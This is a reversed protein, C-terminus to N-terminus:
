PYKVLASLLLRPFPPSFFAHPAPNMYGHTSCASDSQEQGRPDPPLGPLLALDRRAARGIRHICIRGVLARAIGRARLLSASIRRSHACKKCMFLLVLSLALGDLLAPQVRACLIGNHGTSLQYGGLGPCHASEGEDPEAWDPSRLRSTIKAKGAERIQGKGEGRRSGGRQIPFM